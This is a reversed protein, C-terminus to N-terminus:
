SEALARQRREHKRRPQYTVVARIIPVAAVIALPLAVGMRYRAALFAAGVSLVSASTWLTVHSTVDLLARDWVTARTDAPKVRAHLHMDHIGGHGYRQLSREIGETEFGAKLAVRCSRRNRVSHVLEVRHLCLEEFAWECLARTAEPAVGKGRYDPGVWYSCEALGETLYLTRFAVQGLVEEPDSQLSVAWGAGTQARWRDHWEAMWQGAEIESELSLM